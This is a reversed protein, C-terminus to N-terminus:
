FIPMHATNVYDIKEDLVEIRERKSGFLRDWFMSHKGYNSSKRWGYRHHLDHDEITIEAKLMRLIPFFPTPASTYIRLGSHGWVELYTVYQQCIYWQYFGMPVGLMVLTLHALLPVIVMEIVEQEHDAYASLLPNPHKTLHHTRHYKWLFPVEHAARHYIYFFLDIAMGYLGIQLPLRVLNGWTLLGDAPSVSRDYTLYTALVLRSGVTKFISLVVKAVGVDPVGDRDHEDGDLFGHKHSLRRLIHVERVVVLNFIAFYHLFIAVPHLSRIGVLSLAALYGQHMVLAISAHFLVWIHQPLQPLYPVKEDKAHKPIPKDLDIPHAQFLEIVWHYTTWNARDGQRWTSKMSDKPNGTSSM